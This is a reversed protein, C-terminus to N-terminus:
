LPESKPSETLSSPSRLKGENQSQVSDHDEDWYQADGKLRDTEKTSVLVHFNFM